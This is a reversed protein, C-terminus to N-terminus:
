YYKVVVIIKYKRLKLVQHIMRPPSPTPLQTNLFIKTTNQGLKKQKTKYLSLMWELHFQM